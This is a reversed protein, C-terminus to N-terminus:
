NRTEWDIMHNFNYTADVYFYGWDGEFVLWAHNDTSVIKNKINLNNLFESYISAWEYCVVNPDLNTIDVNGNKYKEIENM